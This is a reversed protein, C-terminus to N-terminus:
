KKYIYKRKRKLINPSSHSNGVDKQILKREDEHKHIDFTGEEAFADGASNYSMHFSPIVKTFNRKLTCPYGIAIKVSAKHVYPRM